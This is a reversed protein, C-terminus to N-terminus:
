NCQFINTDCFLNLYPVTAPKTFTGINPSTGSGLTAPMTWGLAASVAARNVVGTVHNFEADRTESYFTQAAWEAPLDINLGFLYRQGTAFAQTFSPSEISFSYSVRIGAPAGAPYYPNVTPVALTLQNGTSNNLFQSRRNGYFGEGYLQIDKTLRQDFTISAGNYEAGASYPTIAY